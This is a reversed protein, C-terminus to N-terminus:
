KKFQFNYALSVMFVVHSTPSTEKFLMSDIENSYQYYDESVTYYGITFGLDIHRYELGVTGYLLIGKMRNIEYGPVYGDNTTGNNLSFQYGIKLDIYPSLKRDLFYARANAYIPIGTLNFDAYHNSSCHLNDVGLGGGISYYPNFQYAVTAHFNILNGEPHNVDHTALIEPRIVIGKERGSKEYIKRTSATTQSVVIQAEALSAAGLLVLIVIIIRAKKM